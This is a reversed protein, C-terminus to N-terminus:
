VSESHKDVQVWRDWERVIVIPHKYDRNYLIAHGDNTLKMVDVEECILFPRNEDSHWFQLKAGEGDDLFFNITVMM